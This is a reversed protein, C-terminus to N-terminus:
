ASLVVVDENSGFAASLHLLVLLSVSPEGQTKTYMRVTVKIMLQTYKGYIYLGTIGM